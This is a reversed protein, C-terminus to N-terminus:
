AGEGKEGGGGLRIAVNIQLKRRAKKRESGLRPRKKKKGEKRGMGPSSELFM